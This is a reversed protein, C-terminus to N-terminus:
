YTPTIKNTSSFPKNYQYILFKIGWYVFEIITLLSFGLFLGAIGGFSVLLDIWGFTVDREYKVAGENRYFIDVSGYSRRTLPLSDLSYDMDLDFVSEHCTPLCQSCNLPSKM